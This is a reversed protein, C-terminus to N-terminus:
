FPRYDVQFREIRLDGAQAKAHLHEPHTAYDALAKESEFESVLVLDCAYDVRSMDMGVEIHRMGPIRGRLKEFAAQVIRANTIREEDTQGKVRWMVIHHITM